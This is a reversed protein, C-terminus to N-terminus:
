YISLNFSQLYANNPVNNVEANNKHLSWFVVSANILVLAAVAAAVKKLQNFHIVPMQPMLAKRLVSDYLSTTDSQPVQNRLQKLRHELNDMM